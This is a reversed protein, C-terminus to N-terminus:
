KISRTSRKRSFRRDSDPLKLVADDLHQAVEQWFMVDMPNASAVGITRNKAAQTEHKRRRAEMKLANASCYRVTTLLWASLVTGQRISKAKQSLILFVAQTVDEALTREGVRRSAASYVLDLYRRVIQAFAAEDRRQAYRRLLEMEDGPPNMWM